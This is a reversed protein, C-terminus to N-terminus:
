LKFPTKFLLNTNFSTCKINFISYTKLLNNNNKIFFNSSKTSKVHEINCM